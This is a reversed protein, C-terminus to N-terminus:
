LSSSPRVRRRQNSNWVSTDSFRPKRVGGYPVAILPPPLHPIDLTRCLAPIDLLHLQRDRLEIKDIADSPETSLMPDTPETKLTVEIPDATLTMDMPENALAPEIREAALWNDTIDHRPTRDSM